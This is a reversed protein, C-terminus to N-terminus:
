SPRPKALLGLVKDWFTERHLDTFEGADFFLRECQPCQELWIHSQDPDRIKNMAPQDQCFPCAIDGVTNLQRGKRPSGVDMIEYAKLTKKARRVMDHEMMIGGCDGCRHYKLSAFTKAQLDGQCKPCEM